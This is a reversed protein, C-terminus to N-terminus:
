PQLEEEPPRPFAGRVGTLVKLSQLARRTSVNLAFVQPLVFAFPTGTLQCTDGTLGSVKYGSSTVEGCGCGLGAVDGCLQTRM